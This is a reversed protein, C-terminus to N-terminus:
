KEEDSKEKPENSQASWWGMKELWNYSPEPPPQVLAPEYPRQISGLPGTSILKDLGSFSHKERWDVVMDSGYSKEDDWDALADVVLASEFEEKTPHMNTELLRTVCYRNRDRLFRLLGERETHLVGAALGTAKVKVWGTSHKTIRQEAPVPPLLVHGHLSLGCRWFIETSEQPSYVLWAGWGEEPPRPPVSDKVLNYDPGPPTTVKGM